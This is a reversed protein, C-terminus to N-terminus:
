PSISPLDVFGNCSRGSPVPKLQRVSPSGQSLEALRDQLRAHRFQYVPGVTRLVQRARADELFRLLRVPSQGRRQLQISALRATWTESYVLGFGLAFGLVEMAAFVLVAGGGFISGLADLPGFVLGIGLGMVLGFQRERHWSSPPDIPSAAETSPRALGSMLGVVLGIMLAFTVGFWLWDQLRNVPGGVLGVVLGAVLGVVLGVGLSARIDTRSWRLRSLQQPTRRSLVSVVLVGLGGVLGVGLAFLFASGLDLVLEGVSALRVQSVYGDVISAFGGMLAVALGVAPGGGLGSKFVSVSSAVLGAAVGVMVGSRVLAGLLESEYAGALVYALGEVLGYGVTVVMATAFGITLSMHISTTSWRPRSLQQQSRNALVSVLLVGLGSVLGFGFGGVVNAGIQGWKTPFLAMGVWLGGLLVQSLVTVLGVLLATAFARPWAPVWRLVQWWALDRTEEVTMHAALHGLWRRAQELSYSPAPQGPRRDYAAPLVRDLLHDEVSGRNAFRNADTLEDVPDGPRYTDRVLTLMLPTDLAQALASDHRNRLDDVLRQWSPPLPEIHCSALYAAAQEPAIPCLELAAAGRLHGGRVAAVLEDSRTLVVLRFTAQEDLAGLAVPRLPAPMEDLGDLIVALYGLDLLRVPADPGYERARVLPHDRALRAALWDVLRESNPDWGHLTVLVPVPVRARGEATCIAARHTLADRLLRIAAGTKGAGPGGLIVLRGSDLGGYVSLLDKLAGSRLDDAAIPAMGPLPSFRAAGAGGVAETVPGTVQRHSWRWQVPIPAPYALGREAAARDWEQRV